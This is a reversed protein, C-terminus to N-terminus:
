PLLSLQCVWVRPNFIIPCVGVGIDVGHHNKQTRYGLNLNLITPYGGEINFYPQSKEVEGGYAALLSMITYLIGLKMKNM